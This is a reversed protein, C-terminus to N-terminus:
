EDVDVRDLAGSLWMLMATCLVTVVARDYEADTVNKTSKRKAIATAGVPQVMATRIVDLADKMAERDSENFRGQWTAFTLMTELAQQQKFDSM